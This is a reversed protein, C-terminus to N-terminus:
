ISVPIELWYFCEEYCFISQVIDVTEKENFSEKRHLRM